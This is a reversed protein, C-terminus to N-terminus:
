DTLPNKKLFLYGLALLGMVSLGLGAKFVESDYYFRVLHEGAILPVARFTYDARLIQTEEGDVQAKWGPYYNDSLFLLKPQDSKTKVIVEQPKYGLIEATGAGFQASIPSPEELILVDRFNFNPSTLKKIILKRREKKIEEDTKGSLDIQPPGEYNSALFARPMVQLNEFVAYDDSPDFVKKFNNEGLARFDEDKAIVYKIGLMDILKRNNPSKLIEEAKGRKLGADARFVFDSFRGGQMGFTFEGYSRDNLSDYGEPWYIRYQSAFNNEFFAGGVGWSRFYGQNKRIFELVPTKPFVYKRECFSFYKWSFYFINLFAVLVILFAALKRYYLKFTGLFILISTLAFVGIPVVMNRLSVVVNQASKFGAHQFYPINFFKIAVLSLFILAYLVGFGFVVKIITKGKGKLWEEFGIAALISLCFAPVFLVRNAISSSLVPIPLSLLFRSTSLDITTSLSVLAFISFFIVVKGKIRGIVALIAFILAAVGVFITGEFYQAAGLRFFNNTAPHGFFDPALFTILSELPLLFDFLTDKLAIESRLSNFYLEASPLFQIAAILVGLLFAGFLRLSEFSFFKKVGLRLILYAFAVILLYISTQLFGGFLSFTVSLSILALFKKNNRALYRDISFLILPLWVISHPLMVAEDGWVLLSPSFGFTLAGFVSAMKSLEGQTKGFPKLNRLFLFTFFSALITPTIRLLHWFEIQPLFLGFIYLPYFIATQFDAAHPHGSFAYPNWLPWSFNKFGDLTVRYFPFFLRLQDWGTNKYPLNQGYPAYFSVLFNGNLNVKGL